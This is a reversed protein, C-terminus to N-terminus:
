VLNHYKIKNKKDEIQKLLDSVYEQKLKTYGRFYNFKDKAVNTDLISFSKRDVDTILKGLYYINNKDKQYFSDEINSFTPADASPLLKGNYFVNKDDKIIRDSFIIELSNPSIEEIKKDQYFLFNDDMSLTKKVIKFTNPNAFDIIRSDYFVKNKDYSYLNNIIEFSRVDVKNIKFGNTYIKKEDGAYGYSHRRFTKPDAGKLRKPKGSMFDTFYVFYEDIAYSIEKLYDVENNYFGEDLVQFTDPSEIKDAKGFLYYINEKDKAYLLNLVKFSEFDIGRRKDGCSYIHKDDIAWYKNIINFHEANAGSIQNGLYYVKSDKVEYTTQNKNIRPMKLEEM